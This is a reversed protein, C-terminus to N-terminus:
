KRHLWYDRFTPPMYAEPLQDEFAPMEDWLDTQILHQVTQAYNEAIARREDENGASRFQMALQGLRDEARDIGHPFLTFMNAKFRTQVKAPESSSDQNLQRDRTYVILPLISVIDENM